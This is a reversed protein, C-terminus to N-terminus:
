KEPIFGEFIILDFFSENDVYSERNKVTYAVLPVPWIAKILKLSLNSKNNHDYAIFDPRSLFNLMLYELAFKLPNFKKVFSGSLQGRIYNPRHKRFWKVVVPNFSEVVYKGDYKDLQLSVKKCLDEIDNNSAKLEVILPIKGDVLELVESLLPIGEISELLKCEKLYDYDCQDIKKDISCMRKLDFDHFVVTQGDKSLQVDFEIGYNNDVAKSIAALSNEPADSNIDHLGRHAYDWKLFPSFDMRNVSPYIMYFYLLIIVLVVFLAILM